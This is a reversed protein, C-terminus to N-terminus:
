QKPDEIVVAVAEIEIQFGYHLDRTPVVARAPRHKGFFAAYVANVRGWLAIDSVYVTTKLVHYIDSGAADLIAAVNRLAQEAQEEISGLNKEGTQPDVPLQGSVYILGGHAIAQSSHGGPAPANRTLITRM